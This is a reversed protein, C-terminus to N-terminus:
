SSLTANRTDRGFITSVGRPIHSATSKTEGISVNICSTKKQFYCRLRGLNEVKKRAELLKKPLSYMGHRLVYTHVTCASRALM